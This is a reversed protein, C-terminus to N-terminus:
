HLLTISASSFTERLSKYSVLALFEGLVKAFYKEFVELNEHVFRSCVFLSHM